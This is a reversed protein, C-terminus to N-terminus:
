LTAYIVMMSLITELIVYGNKKPWLASIQVRNKAEKAMLNDVLYSLYKHSSLSKLLWTKHCRPIIASSVGLGSLDHRQGHVTSKPHSGVNVVRHGQLEIVLRDRKRMKRLVVSLGELETQDTHLKAEKIHSSM